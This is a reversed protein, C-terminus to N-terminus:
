SSLMNHWNDYRQHCFNSSFVFITGTVLAKQLQGSLGTKWPGINAGDKRRCVLLICAALTLLLAVASIILIYTWTSTNESSPIENGAPKTPEATPSISPPNPFPILAESPSLKSKSILAPFSGSATTLISVIQDIPGGNIPNAYLNRTAEALKRRPVYHTQTNMM